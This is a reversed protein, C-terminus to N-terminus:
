VGSRKHGVSYEALRQSIHRLSSSWGCLRYPGLESGNAGGKARGPTQFISLQSAPGPRVWTSWSRAGTKRRKLKTVSKRKPHPDEPDLHELGSWDHGSSGDADSVLQNQLLIIILRIDGTLLTLPRPRVTMPTQPCSNQNLKTRGFCLTTCTHPQKTYKTLDSVPFSYSM